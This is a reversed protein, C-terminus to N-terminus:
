ASFWSALTTKLKLFAPDQCRQLSVRKALALYISSSRPKSKMRLIKEM